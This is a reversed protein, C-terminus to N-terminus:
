IQALWQKFGFKEFLSDIYLVYVKLDLIEKDIDLNKRHSTDIKGKGDISFNLHAIDNRLERNVLKAVNELENSELFGLKSALKAYRLEKFSSVHSIRPRDHFREVHLQHGKAILLFVLVDILTVGLSEVYGLYQFMKMFSRVKLESVKSMADETQIIIRTLSLAKIMRKEFKSAEKKM